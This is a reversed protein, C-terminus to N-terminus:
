YNDPEAALIDKLIDEALCEAHLLCLYVTGGAGDSIELKFAKTGKPLTAMEMADRRSPNTAWEDQACNRCYAGNGKVKQVIGQVRM